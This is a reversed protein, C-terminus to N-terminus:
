KKWWQTLLHSRTEEFHVASYCSYQLLNDVVVMGIKTMEVAKLAMIRKRGEKKRGSNM